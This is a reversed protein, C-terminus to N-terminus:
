PSKLDNFNLIQIKLVKVYFVLLMQANTTEAFSFLCNFLFCFFIFLCYFIVTFTSTVIDNVLADGLDLVGEQVSLSM